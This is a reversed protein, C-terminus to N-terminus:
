VVTNLEVWKKFLEEKTYYRIVGCEVCKYTDKSLINDIKISHIANNWYRSNIFGNFCRPVLEFAEDITWGNRLRECVICLRLGYRRCADKISRFEEGEVVISEGRIQIRDVLDFAEEVSWGNNLRWKVKTKSKGLAECADTVHNYHIGLVNLGKERSKIGLAEELSWGRYLRQSVLTGKVGYHEGAEHLSKFVKGEVEVKRYSSNDRHVTGLIEEISWGQSMRQYSIKYDLGYESCFESLSNYRNGDYNIVIKPKHVAKTTLAEELSMGKGLRGRVTNRAINYERCVESFSSYAVGNVVVEEM